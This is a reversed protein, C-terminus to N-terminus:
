RPKCKGARILGVRRAIAADTSPFPGWQEVIEPPPSAELDNESVIACNGDESKIIYWNQRNDM